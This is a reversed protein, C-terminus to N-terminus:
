DLLILVMMLIWKTDHNKLITTLMSVLHDLKQYKEWHQHNQIFINCRIVDAAIQVLVNYWWRPYWHISGSSCTRTLGRNEFGSKRWVSPTEVGTKFSTRSFALPTEGIRIAIVTQPSQSNASEPFGAMEHASRSTKRYKITIMGAEHLKFERHSFLSFYM